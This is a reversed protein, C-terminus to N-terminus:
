DNIILEYECKKHKFEIYKHNVRVPNFHLKDYVFNLLFGFCCSLLITGINVTGGLLWGLSMFAVEECTRIVKVPQKTLKQLVNMLGNSSNLGLGSVSIFYFGFCMILSGIPLYLINYKISPILLLFLDVLYGNLVASSITAWGIKEKFCCNILITALEVLLSATGYSLLFTKSIGLNLATIPFTTGSAIVLAIGLGQLLLGIGLKIFQKKM